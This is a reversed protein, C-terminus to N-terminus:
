AATSASTPASAPSTRSPGWRYATVGANGVISRGPEVLIRPVPLGVRAMEERVARHGRGRRVRRDVRPDDQATYRIGLGGGVNLTAARSGWVRRAAQRILDVLIAIAKGPLRRAPLDPQRHARAPGRTGPAARGDGAQHSRHALGEVLGFGFKSDEQGTQIYEHTHAEIGPTIRLLIRQRGDREAVLRECCSWSTSATWWWSGSATTWRTRSNARRRTTATSSCARRHSGRGGPRHPVRRGVLRGAVPRRRRGAPRHRRGPVGQQRLHGRLRRHPSPSPRWSAAASTASPRRRTSSCHRASSARGSRGPRLRRDGSARRCDHVATEPYILTHTM